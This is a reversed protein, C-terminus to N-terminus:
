SVTLDFGAMHRDTLEGDRGAGMGPLPQPSAVQRFAHFPIPRIPSVPLAAAESRREGSLRRLTIGARHCATTPITFVEELYIGPPLIGVAKSGRLHMCSPEVVKEKV